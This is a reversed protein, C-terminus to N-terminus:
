WLFMGYSRPRNTPCGLAQADTPGPDERPGHNGPCRRCLEACDGLQDPQICIDCSLGKAGLYQVNAVVKDVAWAVWWFPAM